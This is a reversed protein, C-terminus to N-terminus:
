TAVREEGAGASRAAAPLFSAGVAPRGKRLARQDAGVIHPAPPAHWPVLGWRPLYAGHAQEVDTGPWTALWTGPLRRPLLM